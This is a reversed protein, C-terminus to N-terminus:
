PGLTTSITCPPSHHIRLSEKSAPFHYDGSNCNIHDCFNEPEEAAGARSLSSERLAQTVAEGVSINGDKEDVAIFHAGSQARIQFEGALRADLIMSPNGFHGFQSDGL